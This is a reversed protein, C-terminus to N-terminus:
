RRRSPRQSLAHALNVAAMGGWAVALGAVGGKGVVIASIPIGVSVSVIGLQLQARQFASQVAGSQPQPREGALTAKVRADIARDLREIFSEVLAPEYEKGLERRAELVAALEDHPLDQNSM